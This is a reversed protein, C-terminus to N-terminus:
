EHDLMDESHGTFTPVGTLVGQFETLPAGVRVGAHNIQFERLTDEHGGLRKKIVSVAKRVRGRQEFYRLLIVTDALYTLDVPTQMRGIIGHQAMTMLTVVGHHSLFTLLEHLQLRLSKIDPMAEFYGNLSDIVVIRVNRREVRDKVLHIFQGPAIEAPAIELLEIEGNDTQDEMSMGSSESRAMVARRSEEFLCILSREKREAAALAFQLSLSSKGTGAPGSILCSSGCDLGGGLLTDLEPLNSTAIGPTFAIKRDDVVLRSFVQFGGPVIVADHYGDIFNVGRLKLIKVRRLAAGYDSEIQDLQIVGHAISQVHLDGAGTAHDDLLIATITRDAIFQKLALIQRRYRLPTDTLLRLESLSDIVLRTPRSEKIRNQLLETTRNLELESPHFVTNQSEQALQQELASLEFIDVGSLDWGHSKAVAFIEEKTESLAIYLTREGRRAGELLYQLALTTKGVGPRGVLLYIRNAPLGGRLLTDL